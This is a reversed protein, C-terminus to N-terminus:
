VKLLLDVLYKCPNLIDIYTILIAILILPKNNMYSINMMAGRRWSGSGRLYKPKKQDWRNQCPHEFSEFEDKTVRSGDSRQRLIM